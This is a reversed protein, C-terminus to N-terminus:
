RGGLSRLLRVLRDITSEPKPPPCTWERRPLPFLRGSVPPRADAAYLWARTAVRHAEVLYGQEGELVMEGALIRDRLRNSWYELGDAQIDHCDLWHCISGAAIAASAGLAPAVAIATQYLPSAWIISAERGDPYIIPIMLPQYVLGPRYSLTKTTAPTDVTKREFDQCQGATEPGYPHIGCVLTPSGERPSRGYCHRCDRCIQDLM